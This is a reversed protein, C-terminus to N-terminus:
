EARDVVADSRAPSSRKQHRVPRNFPYRDLDTYHIAIIGM